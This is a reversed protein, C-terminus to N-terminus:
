KLIVTFFLLSKNKWIKTNLWDIFYGFLPKLGYPIVIFGSIFSITDPALGLEEKQYMFIGLGCISQFGQLFSCMSVFCITGRIRSLFSPNDNIDTM